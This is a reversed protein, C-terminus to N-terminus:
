QIMMEVTEKDRAFSMLSEINIFGKKYLYVLSKDMLIMWEKAAVELVWYIQHTKWDIILTRIADNNVLVERAAVRGSMDVKAILRQSIIGILSLSLQMRIQRQQWSPFIDIIRDITQVTDNTHLTSIVLHWTEALTVATKITQADRMEWIVIIDPDERLTARMASSFWKTHKWIERQNILSKESKFTFEIPDEISIIHKKFNKNIYNIISALNTSKWSGTPWTILILWKPEECMQKITDWFWIEEFTPIQSPIIRMAINYGSSDIYCNIRYKDRDGKNHIYSSDLEQTAELKKLEEEGCMFSIFEKIENSQLNEINQNKGNIELEALSELEWNHRRIYPRHNSNLHIDPFKNKSAFDIISLLLETSNLSNIIILIINIFYIKDYLFSEFM